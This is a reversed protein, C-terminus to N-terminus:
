SSVMRDTLDEPKYSSKIWICKAGLEGVDLTLCYNILEMLM